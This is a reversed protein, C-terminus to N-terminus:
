RDHLVCDGCLGGGPARYYLCCSSRRFALTRGAATFVGAGTLPERDLLARVLGTVPYPPHPAQTLLVRLAGVLASASNGRLIHPSLGSLRRVAANLPTLNGLAVTAHLAAAPEQPLTGPARLWLEDPGSG